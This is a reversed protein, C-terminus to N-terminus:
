GMGESNGPIKIAVTRLNPLNDSSWNTFFAGGRGTKDKAWATRDDGDNAGLLSSYIVLRRTCSKLSDPLNHLFFM